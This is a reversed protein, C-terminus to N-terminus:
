VGELVVAHCIGAIGQGQQVSTPSMLAGTGAFIVRKLTGQEMRNLIDGCLVAASCGCGSGGAHVDQTVGYLLVGCDDYSEGLDIGDRQFLEKLLNSGVRALDGTLIRDYDTPATNTDQFLHSLTDYAAPAMAAGMNNADTVDLDVMQGFTVHTVRIHSPQTRLIVSGAATATWQATPTRQGGYAIPFRYQREATCFHSSAAACLNHAVGGDIFCSGVALGEAMTSCAGYLGVFPVNTTVSAISSGICQNLLDGALLLDLDSLQLGSKQTATDIAIRQMRAEALEWTKEGFHTDSSVIDFTGQLPGEGEKQGVVAAHSCLYVPRDLSITRRGLRKAM